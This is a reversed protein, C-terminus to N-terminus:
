QTMGRQVTVFPTDTSLFVCSQAPADEVHGRYSVTYRAGFPICLLFFPADDQLIHARTREGTHLGVARYHLLNVSGLRLYRFRAQAMDTAERAGLRMACASDALSDLMMRSEYGCSARTLSATSM